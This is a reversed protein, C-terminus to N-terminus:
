RSISVSGGNSYIGGDPQGNNDLVSSNNLNLSSGGEVLIGGGEVGFTCGDSVTMNNLTLTGTANVLFIRFEDGSGDCPNNDPGALISAGKGKIIIDSTITPLGTNGNDTNDTSTLTYSGNTALEIVDLGSNNVEDNAANISAILVAVNTNPINFVTDANDGIGDGDTDTTETPDLPFTDSTDPTGDNDDDLDANDGTGDSDNDSTETPDNPFADIHDPVNDGDVDAVVFINFRGTKAQAGDEGGDSLNFDFGDTFNSRGFIIYSQGSADGNPSANAASVILDAYGDNNIDGLGSISTGCCNQDGSNIGNLVFGASGNAGNVSLLSSLEFEAPFVSAKGYVLYAQGSEDGNPDANYAGILLDAYGDGNVDGANAVGRGSSDNANIGNLIFGANGNGGNNEQLSSLNFQNPFNSAKGFVVYSEGASEKGDPDALSAGIILDDYGDANIDGANSVSIGSYDSSDIGSLMFGDNLTSTLLSSLEFEAIFGNAKGYIIHSEGAEAEVTSLILDDYDDNNIDGAGSVSFGTWSGNGLSHLVFGDSADGGNVPFLSSLEFEAQFGGAKGFLVYAEGSANRGHPSANFAGIIIDEFGDGNIDGAGAVSDGSFGNSWHGRIIFGASGNGGQSERLSNIDFEALFSPKGFVVYTEGVWNGGATRAGILLDDYGDNNIDGANAVSSGSRSYGNIVFGESGNGSLLNSLEFEAVFQTSKGFIVYTEGANNIGNPDASIASILIDDFGDGNVDGASSVSYGSQDDPDIGNLVFGTSGDGGNEELLSSLEIEASIDSTLMSGNHVYLLRGSDIDAQTFTLVAVGPNDNFELQGYNPASTITYTIEAPSDDLDTGQLFLNSIVRTQGQLSSLYNNVNIVPADNIECVDGIANGDSDEQTINSVGPCNDLNDGIGDGDTDTTENPDNPFVDALNLVGDNDIDVDCVDGISDNDTDVQDSNAQNPCNDLEDILGDSDSDIAITSILESYVLKYPYDYREYIKVAGVGEALWYTTTKRYDVDVNYLEGSIFRDVRLLVTNYTGSPVTVQEFSSLRTIVTNTYTFASNGPIHALVTSSSRVTQGLKMEAEAIKLPPLSDLRVNEINQFDSIERHLVLGEADNTYYDVRSDTYALTSTLKGNINTQNNFVSHAIDIDSDLIDYHWTNGANLPFYSSLQIIECQDGTGDADLDNQDANSDYICNDINNLVGDNDIDDDCIDGIGDVDTDDQSSNVDTPCNDLMDVVSDNDTDISPLNFSIVSISGDNNIAIIDENVEYIAILGPSTLLTEEFAYTTSWRQIAGQGDLTILLSGHLWIADITVTSLTALVDPYELDTPLEAHVVKNGVVLYSGSPPTRIVPKILGVSSGGNYLADESEFFNFVGNIDIKNAFITQPNGFSNYYIIRKENDWFYEAGKRVSPNESILNGSYDYIYQYSYFADTDVFVFQDLIVINSLSGSNNPFVDIFINEINSNDFNIQTIKKQNKYGLYLTNNNKSYAIQFPFESDTIPIAALYQQAQISWRDISQNNSNLQYVIGNIKDVAIENRSLAFSEYPFITVFIFFLFSSNKCHIITQITKKLVEMTDLM